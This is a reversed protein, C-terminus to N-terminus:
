REPRGAADWARFAYRPGDGPWRTSSQGEPIRRRPAGLWQEIATGLYTAWTTGDPALPHAPEDETTPPDPDTM